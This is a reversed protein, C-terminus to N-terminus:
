PTGKMARNTYRTMTLHRRRPTSPCAAYWCEVVRAFQGMERLRVGDLRLLHEQSTCEVPQGAPQPLALMDAFVLSGDFIRRPYQKVAGEVQM